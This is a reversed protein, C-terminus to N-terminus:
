YDKVERVEMFGEQENPYQWDRRYDEFVEDSVGHSRSLDRTRCIDIPTEMVVAIVDAGQRKAIRVWHRRLDASVSCRDIVVDHYRALLDHVMLDEYEHITDILDPNFEPSMMRWIDDMSVRLADLTRAYTTKGSAPYGVMVYLIPLRPREEIEFVSMDNGLTHWWADDRCANGAM